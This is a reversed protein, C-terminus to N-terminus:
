ELVLEIMTSVKILDVCFGEYRELFSFRAKAEPTVTSDFEKEMVYPSNKFQFTIFESM